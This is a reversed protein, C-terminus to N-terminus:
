PLSGVNGAKVVRNRKDFTVEYSFPAPGSYSWVQQNNQDAIPQDLKPYGLLRVVLERAMGKVVKRERFAQLIRPAAGKLPITPPVTTILFPFEWEDAILLTGTDPKQSALRHKVSPPSGYPMKAFPRDFAPGSEAIGMSARLNGGPVAFRLELPDQAQFSGPYWDNALLWIPAPRMMTIQGNRIRSISTITVPLLPSWIFTQESGYAAAGLIWVKQGIWKQRIAALNDAMGTPSLYFRLPQPSGISTDAPHESIIANSFDAALTYWGGKVGGRNFQIPMKLVTVSRFTIPNLVAFSGAFTLSPKTGRPSEIVQLKIKSADVKWDNNPNATADIELRLKAPFTTQFMPFLSLHDVQRLGLLLVAAALM